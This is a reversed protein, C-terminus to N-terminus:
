SARVFGHLLSATLSHEGIRSEADALLIVTPKPQDRFGPWPCNRPESQLFRGGFDVRLVKPPHLGVSPTTIIIARMLPGFSVGRRLGDHHCFRTREM